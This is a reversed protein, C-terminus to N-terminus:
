RRGPVAFEPRPKAAPRPVARRVRCIQFPGCSKRARVPYGGCDAKIRLVPGARASLAPDIRRRSYRRALYPIRVLMDDPGRAAGPGFSCGPMGERM